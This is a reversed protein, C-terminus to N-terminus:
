CGSVGNLCGPCSSDPRVSAGILSIPRSVRFRSPMSSSAVVAAAGDAFSDVFYTRTKFMAFRDFRRVAEVTECKRACAGPGPRDGLNIASGSPPQVLVNVEGM